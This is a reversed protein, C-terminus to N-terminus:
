RGFLKHIAFAWCSGCSGQNKPKTLLGKWIKRGDFESPLKIQTNHIDISKM